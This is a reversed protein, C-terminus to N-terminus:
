WSKSDKRYFRSEYSDSLEYEIGRNLDVAYLRSAGREKIAINVNDIELEIVRRRRMVSVPSSLSGSEYISHVIGYLYYPYKASVSVPHNAKPLTEYLEALVTEQPRENNYPWRNSRKKSTFYGGIWYYPKEDLSLEEIVKVDNEGFVSVPPTLMEVSLEM